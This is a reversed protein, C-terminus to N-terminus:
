LLHKEEKRSAHEAKSSSQIANIDVNKAPCGTKYIKSVVSEPNGRLTIVKNQNM